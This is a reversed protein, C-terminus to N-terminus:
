LSEQCDNRHLQEAVVNGDQSADIDVEGSVQGLTDRDFLSHRKYFTTSKLQFPKLPTMKFVYRQNVHAIIPLSVERIRNVFFREWFYYLYM